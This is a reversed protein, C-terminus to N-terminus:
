GSLVAGPTGRKNKMSPYPVAGRTTYTSKAIRQALSRSVRSYFYGRALGFKTILTAFSRRLAFALCHYRSVAAGAAVAVSRPYM